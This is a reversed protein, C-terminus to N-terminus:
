DGVREHKFDGPEYGNDQFVEHVETEDIGDIEEAVAEVVIGLVHFQAFCSQLKTRSPHLFQPWYFQYMLFAFIILGWGWQDALQIALDTLESM